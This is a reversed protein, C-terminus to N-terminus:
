RQTEASEITFDKRAARLEDTIHQRYPSDKRIAIGYEFANPYVDYEDRISSSDLIAAVLRTYHYHPLWILDPKRQLLRAVSFGQHATANDNLGALDIIQVQPAVAGPYGVESMAVVAGAPLSAIVHSMAAVAEAWNTEPGHGIQQTRGNVRDQAELVFIRYAGALKEGVLSSLAIVCASLLVLRTVVWQWSAALHKDWDAVFDDLTLIAPIVLFPLAPMYYRANNGMIQVVSFLYAFHVLVPLLFVALLRLHRRQATFIILAIFPFAQRFFELLYGVDNWNQHGIYGNYFGEKKVFYSLPLPSGFIATKWVLDLGLLLGLSGFCCLFLGLRQNSPILLWIALAPFLVAYLGTDPRTLYCLYGTLGVLIAKNRSPARLLCLVAGILLTNVVMALTTEMGTLAHYLFPQSTLIFTATLFLIFPTKRMLETKCAVRGVASLAFVLIVAMAWSLGQLVLAANHRLFERVITVLALYTTSSAGYTPEGGRNWVVGQGSLINDAYRIFIYSDDMPSYAHLLPATKASYYSTIAFLFLVLAAGYGTLRRITTISM